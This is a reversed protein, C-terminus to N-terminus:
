IYKATRKVQPIEILEGPYHSAATAGVKIMTGPPWDRGPAIELWHSSPEDGYGGLFVSGDATLNKGVYIGYSAWVYGSTAAALTLIAFVRLSILLPTKVYLFYGSGPHMDVSNLTSRVRESNAM